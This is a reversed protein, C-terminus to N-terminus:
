NMMQHRLLRTQIHEFTRRCNNHDRNQFLKDIKQFDERTYESTTDLTKVLHEVLQVEDEFIKIPLDKEFDILAPGNPPTNWENLDFMISYVPKLQYFFDYMVSSYDTILADCDIIHQQLLESTPSILEIKRSGNGFDSIYNMMNFHPQFILKINKEELINILLSSQLLGHWVKYYLSDRINEKKALWKRWTPAVLIKRILKGAPKLPLKDFRALGTVAINKEEFGYIRAFSNKEMENSTVVMNFYPHRKKYYTMTKNGSVGHQLFVNCTKRWLFPFIIYPYALVKFCDTSLIVKAKHLLRMHKWSFLYVVNGYTIVNEVQLSDRRIIYYIPLDPYQKRLYIFFHLSNDEASQAWREDILWVDHNDKAKFFRTVDLFLILYKSLCLVGPYGQDILNRVTIKGRVKWRKLKHYLERLPVTLDEYYAFNDRLRRDIRLLAHQSPEKKFSQLPDAIKEITTKKTLLDLFTTNNNKVLSSLAQLENEMLLIIKLKDIDKLDTGRLLSDYDVNAALLRICEIIEKRENIDAGIIVKKLRNGVLKRLESRLLHQYINEKGALSYLEALSLTTRVRDKFFSAKIRGTSANERARYNYVVEPLISINEFKLFARACFDLDEGATQEPFILENRLISTKKFLKNCVSIDSLLAPFESIDTDTILKNFQNQHVPVGIWKRVKSFSQQIGIVMESSHKQAIEYMKRYADSPVTDDSDLFTIYEGSSQLLALNRAAGQRKRNQRFISINAHQDRFSLLIEWSGDTSGDDVVLIEIGDLSQRLVSNLCEPLYERTNYVPIIVSLKPPKSILM